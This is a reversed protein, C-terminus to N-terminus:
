KNKLHQKLLKSSPHFYRIGRECYYDDTTIDHYTNTILDYVTIKGKKREGLKKRYEESRDFKLKQNKRTESIKQKTAETHRRNKWIKSLKLRTEASVPPPKRGKMAKSINQKHEQTFPPRRKGKMPSPKGKNHPPKGKKARSMKAKSKETHAVGIMRYDGHGNSKNFFTEFNRVNLSQLMKTEAKLAEKGDVFPFIIIQSPYNNKLYERVLKSSTFYTKLLENPNAKDKKTRSGVYMKGNPWVLLYVFPVYSNETYNINSM